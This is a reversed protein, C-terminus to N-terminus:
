PSMSYVESLASDNKHQNQFAKEGKGIALLDLFKKHQKCVLLEELIKSEESVIESEQKKLQNIQTLLWEIKRNQERTEDETKTQKAQQDMKFKEYKDKDEQFIKKGDDLKEKEM